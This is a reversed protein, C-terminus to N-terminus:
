DLSQNLPSPTEYWDNSQITPQLTNLPIDFAECILGLDSNNIDHSNRSQFEFAFSVNRPLIMNAAGNKQRATTVIHSRLHHLFLLIIYERYIYKIRNCEYNNLCTPVRGTLRQLM